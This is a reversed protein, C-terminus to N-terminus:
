GLAGQKAQQSPLPLLLPFTAGPHSPEVDQLGGQSQEIEVADIAVVGLEAAEPGLRQGQGVADVPGQRHLPMEPGDVTKLADGRGLAKAVKMGAPAFSALEGGSSVKLATAAAMAHRLRRHGRDDAGVRLEVGQSGILQGVVDGQHVHVTIEVALHHVNQLQQTGPELLSHQDDEVVIEGAGAEMLGAIPRGELLKLAAGVGEM